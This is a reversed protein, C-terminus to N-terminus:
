YSNLSFLELLHRNPEHDFVIAVDHSTASGDHGTRQEIKTIAKRCCRFARCFNMVFSEVGLARMPM